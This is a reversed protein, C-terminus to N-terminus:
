GGPCPAPSTADPPPPSCPPFVAGPPQTPTGGPPLPTPLIELAEEAIATVDLSNSTLAETTAPLNGRFVEECGRVTDSPDAHCRDFGAGGRLLDNGSRQDVAILRDPGPGGKLRDRGGGAVLSDSGKGGRIRDRGGNGHAYDDGGLLCVTEGSRSGAIVDRGNSGVVDCSPAAIVPPAPTISGILLLVTASIIMIVVRRM